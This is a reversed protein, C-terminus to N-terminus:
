LGGPDAGGRVGAPQDLLRPPLGTHRPRATMRCQWTNRKHPREISIIIPLCFSLLGEDLGATFGDRPDVADVAVGQALLLRLVDPHGNAAAHMLPTSGGGDARSPDAGGDLLLRAEQLRGNAAVRCLATTQIVEGSPTRAPVSANPDAGAALLRAVAVGDGDMAAMALKHALRTPTVPHPEPAPGAAQAARLQEAVVVRLREVVAAHGNEEALVRGTKGTKEKFGVDCGARALVEVCEAQNNRCAAHFATFGSAPHAADVAAGWVLLLRLVEPQGAVAAALLPTAGHSSARSPDAGGDLLLRAAELRGYGAAECLATTPIFEGSATRATASANPDAGAVLLRAVAVGDGETAAMALKPALREGALSALEPEPEPAPGAAPMALLQETVTAGLREVVAAHGQAEAVERGTRGDKTRLGVDCGARILAEVCEPQNNWCASHFATYGAVPQAADVAAGRRLLLRLVEPHGNMATVMLPSVGDDDARSPDAGADLLLRAADLHGSQVAHTLPTYHDVQGRADLVDAVANPDVGPEALLRGVLEGDVTQEVLRQQRGVLRAEGPAAGADLWDLALHELGVALRETATASGGGGGPFDPLAVLYAAPSGLATYCVAVSGFRNGRLSGDAGRPGTVEVRRSRGLLV